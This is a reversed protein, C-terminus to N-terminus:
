PGVALQEVVVSHSETPEASLNEKFPELRVPVEYSRDGPAQVGRFHLGQTRRAQSMPFSSSQLRDGSAKLPDNPVRPEESVAVIRVHKESRCRVINRDKASSPDTGKEM